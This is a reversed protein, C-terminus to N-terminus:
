LSLEVFNYKLVTTIKDSLILKGVSPKSTEFEPQPLNLAFAKQTYYEKRSPHYPTVANFIENNELNDSQRSADPNRIGNSIIAEISGICDKQHILNIPADPNAINKQGALMQIPHRDDGILGGFRVITTQFSTNRKLLNECALLQIGSETAPKTTTNETVCTWSLTDSADSDDYVSTSSVFIVKKIASKEIFPIFNEIKPVFNEKTNGRLKPPINIILVDSSELFKKISKKTEKTAASATLVVVFPIIGENELITLKSESTTSGKVSFGNKLLSKALPFGLWGCGLISIKM